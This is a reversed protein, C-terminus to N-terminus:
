SPCTPLTLPLNFGACGGPSLVVVQLNVSGSFSGSGSLTFPATGSLPGALLTAGARLECTCFGNPTVLASVTVPTTGGPGCDGISLGTLQITPCQGPQPENCPLLGGFSTSCDPNTACRATVKIDGGCDCNMPITVSWNGGSSLAQATVGGGGCDANVIVDFASAPDFIIPQCDGSLTGTVIVATTTGGGGAVGTVSTITISCAM